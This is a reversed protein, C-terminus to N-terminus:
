GKGLFTRISRSIEISISSEVYHKWHMNFTDNEVFFYQKTCDVMKCTTEASNLLLETVTSLRVRV